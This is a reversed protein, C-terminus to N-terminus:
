KLFFFSSVFKEREYYDEDSKIVISNRDVKQTVTTKSGTTTRLQKDRKDVFNEVYNIISTKAEKEKSM